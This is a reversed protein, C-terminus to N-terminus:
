TSQLSTCCLRATGLQLWSPTQETLYWAAHPLAPPQLTVQLRGLDGFACSIAQRCTLCLAHLWCFM